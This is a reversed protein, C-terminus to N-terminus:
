YQNVVQPLRKFFDTVDAFERIDNAPITINITGYGLGGGNEKLVKSFAEVMNRSSMASSASSGTPFDMKSVPPISALAMEDASKKVSTNMQQMGNALGQGINVGYGMTVRSPSKIKLAGTIATKIGDTISKVKDWVATAMSGIGTILGKMIDKGTQALDIAKLYAKIDTWINQVTTKITEWAGKWDGKLVKLVTQIIGLVLNIGTSAILKIGEWAIRVINSIIPWAVQFIGQIIGMVMKITGSIQDFYFKVISSIQKGNADWFKRFTELQGSAFKVVSEVVSSVTKKIADFAVVTAGKIAGWATDVAKKFWDVKNYTLVLIAIVGAIAAIAIGVPGTLFTFVGALATVAPVTSAVGTTVVAIAASVTGMVAIISGIASILTGGVVLLPGIAAAILGFVVMLQQGVPSLNTFWNSVTEVAASVKPLLNEAMDLLVSGIPELASQFERFVSTMRSGFNDYLAAGAEETSGKFDGLDTNVTAFFDQFEPGLDEIPTGLLAVATEAKLAPDQIGAIASAVAAFATKASDGGSNIDNEIQQVDLGVLELAEQSAKSGDGIGIFAEKAADGVKDLNFAGSEAGAILIATFEEASYGMGKFQPAYERLSDILEDSFNGGRQFGTTMLDFAEESGIGFNKMLVSATRTSENIEAGFADSLTYASEAVKELEGNNMDGMNQKIIALSDGVDSLSEGFANKWLNTAVGSLEEAEESTLGLQAQIRGQATDFQDAVAIAGAGVAVLPLTVTASLSEGANKMKDGAKKMREGAETMTDGLRTWSSESLRIEDQQRQLASTVQTLETETRTMEATARNLSTALNEAATSNAGQEEVVRQYSESLQQVKAKQSDLLTSLTSQKAGLGEVSSGWENGRGRIIAMEQGLGKINRNISALSQDFTASDLSLGVRLSGIEEAM